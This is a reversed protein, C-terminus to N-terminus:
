DRELMYEIVLFGGLIASFLFGILGLLPIDFLTPGVDSLLALSSGLILSALILAVSLQNAIESIDALRVKVEIDGEELKSLTSNITDPLDKALHELQLLYNLGVKAIREPKYKNVIIKRSLKKLEEAANFNPDLKKGTDEILTIGRGIMVFERPLTIDNKVM